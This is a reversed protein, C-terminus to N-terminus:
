RRRGAAARGPALRVRVRRDRRRCRASRISGADRAPAGAASRRVILPPRASSPTPGLQRTWAASSGTAWADGSTLRLRRCRASPDHRRGLVRGRPYVAQRTTLTGFRERAGRGHHEGARAAEGADCVLLLDPTSTSCVPRQAADATEGARPFASSSPAKSCRPRRVAHLPQGLELMVYNTVDVVASISRIGSRELRQKMWAPTPASADIGEIVRGCFRPCASRTRSACTARRTHRQGRDDRPPPHAAAVRHDRAVDRAIGLMSLCDARNPTLKLTLVADDLTSRRACTPALIPTM